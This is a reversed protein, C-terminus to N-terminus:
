LRAIEKRLLLTRTGDHSPEDVGTPRYGQRAYFARARPNMEAVWLEVASAGLARAFAEATDLLGTAWGGGRLDDDVWMAGVYGDHPAEPAVRVYVTGAFAGDGRDVVFLASEMSEASADTREAWLSDPYALEEAYTSGFAGPELRLARLRVERYAAAEGSRIRRIEM